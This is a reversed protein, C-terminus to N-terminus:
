NPSAQGNPNTRHAPKPDLSASVPEPGSMIGKSTAVQPVVSHFRRYDILRVGAPTTSIVDAFSAGVVIDDMTYSYRAHISQALREDTGHLSLFVEANRARLSEFANDGFFPSTDDIRHMATWTLAFLPTRDRVLTLDLLRRMTDGELTTETVMLVASLEAQVIENHRWNAMRFMLHPVGDRMSIVAHNGFLVKAMPRSFKAFTIGAVLAFGVVGVFAEITVVIHGYLNAPAMQGYGITGITQVSFFFADVFSGQRAGSICGPVAVYALAFAINSVIFAGFVIATLALWGRSLVFHYADGGFTRQQGIARIRPSFTRAKQLSVKAGSTGDVPTM